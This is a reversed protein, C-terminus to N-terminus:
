WPISSLVYWQARKMYKIKKKNQYRALHTGKQYRFIRSISSFRQQNIQPDM